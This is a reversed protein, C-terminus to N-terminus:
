PKKSRPVKTIDEFTKIDGPEMGAETYLQRHFKSHDYAWQVIKKFKILQLARLQEQPMTELIPNWYKDAGGIM